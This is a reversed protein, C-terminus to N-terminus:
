ESPFYYSLVILTGNLCEERHHQNAYDSNTEFIQVSVFPNYVQGYNGVYSLFNALPNDYYLYASYVSRDENLSLQPIDESYYQAVDALNDQTCYWWNETESGSGRYTFNSVLQSEPYQPPMLNSFTYDGLGSYGLILLFWSVFFTLMIILMIGVLNVARELLPHLPKQKRKEQSM